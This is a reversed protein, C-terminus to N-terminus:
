GSTTMTRRSLLPLVLLLVVLSHQLVTLFVGMTFETQIAVIVFTIGILNDFSMIPAGATLRSVLGFLLGIFCAIGIVGALGFNAYGENLLGWGVTTRKTGSETQIGYHINLIMTGAHSFPKDPNIIRPVLLKPVVEYTAGDLYPYYKPTVRQIYLLLHILSVREYIPGYATRKERETFIARIGADAWDDLLRPMDVLEVPRNVYFFYRERIEPKGAHLFGFVLITILLGAWPVRQRGIAFGILAVAVASIAGILFMTTIQMVIYYLAVMLFALQQLRNIERRGARYALVFMAVSAFTIISARIIGFVSPNINLDQGVLLMIFVGGLVLATLFFKFGRKEPLVYYIKRAARTGRRTIFYWSATAFLAYLAVTIASFLIEEQDYKKLEPHGAILPLAFTWTLTLTHLPLIPLGPRRGDAWLYGAILATTVIILASFIAGDPEVATRYLSYGLSVAFFIKIGLLLQPYRHIRPRNLTAFKGQMLKISSSGM